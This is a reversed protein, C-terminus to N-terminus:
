LEILQDKRATGLVERGEPTVLVCDEIRIGGADQVYVGPEVTVVNGETLTDESIKSLRPAEHIDLGVGHGLGHGFNDGRGVEEIVSRAERDVAVGAAGPGVAAIGASQAALVLEYMARQDETAAGLVVTRTLDSCYGDLRCGFDLLVLDGKQLERDTPTHHIHASLPGSGVIPPFSVEEAGWSRMQIELELAIQREQAGPVLRDIVWEFARDGLAIAQRLSSVEEPGKVKRMEEVMGSTAEIGVDGLRGQLEERDAVTMTKAEFGLKRTGAEQVLPLLSDTLRSPYIQVEADEVLTAARAAYRPDTLFVARGPTLLLQGNTGSFGCLYRVNTLNTILLAGVGAQALSNQLKEIRGAHDM